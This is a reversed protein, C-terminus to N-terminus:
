KLIARNNLCDLMEYIKDINIKYVDKYHFLYICNGSHYKRKNNDDDDDKDNDHNFLTIGCTNNYFNFFLRIKSTLFENDLEESIKPLDKFVDTSLPEFKIYISTFDYIDYDIHRKDLEEAITSMLNDFHRRRANMNNSIAIAM